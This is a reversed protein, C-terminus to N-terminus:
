NPGVADAVALAAELGAALDVAHGQSRLAAGLATLAIVSYMPEATPGMHGIRMIKGALDGDGCSLTVGYRRRMEGVLSVADLGEPLRLATLTPSAIAEDKPGLKLGM